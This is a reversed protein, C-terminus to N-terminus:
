APKKKSTKGGFLLNGVAIQGPGTLVFGLAVALCEIAHSAADLGGGTKFHMFTAVFMTFALLAAMPRFFLGLVICIGGVLESFAAMFGWFAPWAHVGLNGMAAGTKAWETVGGSMKPWGHILIFIGGFGVRMLLLGIDKLTSKTGDTM